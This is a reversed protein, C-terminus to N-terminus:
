FGHRRTRWWNRPLHCLHQSNSPQLWSQSHSSCKRHRECECIFRRNASQNDSGLLQGSSILQQGPQGGLQCLLKGQENFVFIRSNTPTVVNYASVYVKGQWNTLGEPFQLLPVQQSSAFVRGQSPFSAEAPSALAYSLLLSLGAAVAGLLLLIKRADKWTFLSFSPTTVRM